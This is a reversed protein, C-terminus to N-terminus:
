GAREHPKFPKFAECCAGTSWAPSQRVIAPATNSVWRISGFAQNNLPAIGGMVRTVTCSPAASQNQVDPFILGQLLGRRDIDDALDDLSVGDVVRRVNSQSLIIKDFPIDQSPSLTLKPQAKAMATRWPPRGPAERGAEIRRSAGPGERM